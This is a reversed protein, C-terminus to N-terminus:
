PVEGRVGDRDYDGLNAQREVAEDIATQLESRNISFSLPADFGIRWGPLITLVLREGAHDIVVQEGRTRRLVLQGEREM